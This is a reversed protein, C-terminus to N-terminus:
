FLERVKYFSFNELINLPGECDFIDKLNLKLLEDNDSPKKM